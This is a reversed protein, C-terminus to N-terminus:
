VFPLPPLDDHGEMLIKAVEHSARNRSVTGDDYMYNDAACVKLWEVCLRTFSQQNTRHMYIAMAQATEEANFNFDNVVKELALAKERGPTYM